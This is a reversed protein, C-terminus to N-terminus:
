ARALVPAVVPAVSSPALFMTAGNLGGRVSLAGDFRPANALSSSLISGVNLAGVRYTRIKVDLCIPPAVLPRSQSRRPTDGNVRDTNPFM